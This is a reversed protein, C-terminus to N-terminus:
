DCKDDGSILLEISFINISLSNNILFQVFSHAVMLKLTSWCKNYVEFM